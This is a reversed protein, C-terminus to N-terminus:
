KITYVGPRVLRCRLKDLKIVAWQFFFQYQRFPELQTKQLQWVIKDIGPFGTLPSFGNVAAAGPSLREPHSPLTRVFLSDLVNGELDTMVVGMDIMEHWGPVLGTTEVDIFALLWDDPATSPDTTAYPARDVAAVFPPREQGALPHALLITLLIPLTPRRLM